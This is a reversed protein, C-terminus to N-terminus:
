YGYKLCLEERYMDINDYENDTFMIFNCCKCIPFFDKKNKLLAMQLLKLNDGNWVDLIKDNKINGLTLLGHTDQELSFCCPKIDGTASVALSFFPLSCAIIDKVYEKYITQKAFDKTMIKYNISDFFPVISQITTADCINDFIQHFYKKRDMTQIFNDPMKIYIKAMGRGNRYFYEINSIFQEYNIKVSCTNFYDSADLGQASIRLIDLGSDLLFDSLEKTLLSGNSIVVVEDAITKALRIMKPLKKHLLPEGWGTFTLTKLKNPFEAIDIVLKEFLKDSIFINNNEAFSHVCYSCKFNCSKTPEIHISYPTKLPLVDKLYNREKREIWKGNKLSDM